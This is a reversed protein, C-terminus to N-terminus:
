NTYLQKLRRLRFSRRVTLLPTQDSNLGQAVLRDLAARKSQYNAGFDVIGHNSFCVGLEDEQVGFAPTIENVGQVFHRMDVSMGDVNVKTLNAPDVREEFAYSVASKIAGSIEAGTFNKTQEALESLNVDANLYRCWHVCYVTLRAYHDHQCHDPCM